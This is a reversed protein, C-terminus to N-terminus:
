RQRCFPRRRQRQWQQRRRCLQRRGRSAGSRQNPPRVARRVTRVSVKFQSATLREAKGVPKGVKRLTAFRNRLKDSLDEAKAQRHATATEAAQVSGLGASLYRRQLLLDISELEVRLHDFADDAQILKGARVLKLIQGLRLNIRGPDMTERFYQATRPDRTRRALKEVEALYGKSLRRVRGAYDAVHLELKQRVHETLKAPADAEATSPKDDAKAV